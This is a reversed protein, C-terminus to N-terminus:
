TKKDPEHHFCKHYWNNLVDGVVEYRQSRYFTKNSRSYVNPCVYIGFICSFLHIAYNVWQLLWLKNAIVRQLTFKVFVSRRMKYKLANDDIREILLCCKVLFHFTRIVTDFYFKVTIDQISLKVMLAIPMNWGPNSSKERSGSKDSVMVILTHGYSRNTELEAKCM